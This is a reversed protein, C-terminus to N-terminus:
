TKKQKVNLKLFIKKGIKLKIKKFYLFKYKINNIIKNNIKVAKQKILEKIKKKSNFYKLKFIINVLSSPLLCKIKKKKYKKINFFKNINKLIKKERGMIDMINCFIKIKNFINIDKANKKIIKIYRIKIKRKLINFDSINFDKINLVKWFINNSSDKYLICGEPYSSSMKKSNKLNRLIDFSIHCIKKKYCFFNFVQDIGGIEIDVNLIINDYHQYFPYIIEGLKIHNNNSIRKKIEKRSVLKNLSLNEILNLDINKLWNENNFIYTKKKILLKLIQKKIKIYNNRITKNDYIKRKEFRKSPDGIKSTHLGIVIYAYFPRFKQLKKIKNLILIHGLHISSSTPDIGFKILIKKKTFDINKINFININNKNLIKEFNNKYKSFNSRM